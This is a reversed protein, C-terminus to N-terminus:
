KQVGGRTGLMDARTSSDMWAKCAAKFREQSKPLDSRAIWETIFLERAKSLSPAPVGAAEKAKAKPAPCVPAPPPDNRPVGKSSWKQHWLRSSARHAERKRDQTALDAEKEESTLENSGPADMVGHQPIRSGELDPIQSDVEKPSDPIQSDEVMERECKDAKDPFQYPDPGFLDEMTPEPPTDTGDDGTEVAGNLSQLLRRAVSRNPRPSNLCM